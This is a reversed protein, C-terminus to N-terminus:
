EGTIQTEACHLTRDLGDACIRAAEALVKSLDREGLAFSGFGALAAQQRRLKIVEESEATQLMQNNPGDLLAFGEPFPPLGNNIAVVQEVIKLARIVGDARYPKSIVADGDAKKLDMRTVYGSAFLVCMRRPSKLRAPIDTGLGGDALRIDVVALDPDYREGLEVAQGVTRAIGCVDYGATVLTEELMDAMLLDDEAIMVTPM